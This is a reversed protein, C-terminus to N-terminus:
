AAAPKALEALEHADLIDVRGDGNIDMAGSTEGSKAIVDLLLELDAQDVRADQNIDGALVDGANVGGAAARAGDAYIVSEDLLEHAASFTQLRLSDRSVHFLTYNSVYGIMAQAYPVDAPAYFKSGSNGMVYVIGSAADKKGNLLPDTRMYVHQHGCLALDLGSAEFVPIWERALVNAVGDPVVPYAPHHMIAIKWQAGSDKIDAAIWDKVRELEADTLPREGSLINSSLATIHAGGYDFSYFEEKFGEPGNKPLDFLKLYMDASGDFANYEHNGPVPMMPLAAFASAANKWFIRWLDLSQGNDVLDGAMLAFAPPAGVAGSAAARQAMVRWSAYERQVNGVQDYQIDGLFLFAFDEQRGPSQYEFRQIRGNGARYYYVGDTLGTLRAEMVSVGDQAFVTTGAASAAEKLSPDRGYILADATQEGENWWTAAAEGELESAAILVYPPRNADAARLLAAGAEARSVNGRPGFRDDPYGGIVGMASLAAVSGKAWDEIEAGDAFEAEGGTFCFVRALMAAMQQRSLPDDPGFRGDPYGSVLDLVAGASIDAEAWHGRIDSFSLNPADAAPTNVNLIRLLMALFEARSVPLDPMFLGDGVGAALGERALRAIDGEAWHGAVDTFVPAAGSDGPGASVGLRGAGASPTGGANAGTGSEDAGGADAGPAGGAGPEGGAGPDSAGPGSAGTGADAPLTVLIQYVGRSLESTTSRGSVLDEPLMGLCLRFRDAAALSGPTYYGGNVRSQWSVLALMPKVASAGAQVADLGSVVMGLDKGPTVGLEANLLGPYDYRAANFSKRSFTKRYGDVSLFRISLYAEMDAETVGSGGAGSAANKLLVDVDVGRAETIVVAPLADITFYRRAANGALSELEEPSYTRLLIEEGNKSAYVSLEDATVVAKSGGTEAAWVTGAAPLVALALLVALLVAAAM